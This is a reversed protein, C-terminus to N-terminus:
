KQATSIIKWIIYQDFCRAMPEAVAYFLECLLLTPLQLHKLGVTLDVTMNKETRLQVIQAQKIKKLQMPKRLYGRADLFNGQNFNVFDDPADFSWFKNFRDLMPALFFHKQDFDVYKARQHLCKIRLHRLKKKSSQEIAKELAEFRWSFCFDFTASNFPDFYKCKKDFYVQIWGKKDFYQIIPLKLTHQFLFSEFHYKKCLREVLLTPSEYLYPEECLLMDAMEFNGNNISYNLASDCEATLDLSKTELLCQVINCQNLRLAWNFIRPTPLVHKLIKRVLEVQNFQCARALVFMNKTQLLEKVNESSDIVQELQAWQKKQALWCLFQNPNYFSM